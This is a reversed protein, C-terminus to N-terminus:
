VQTFDVPGGNYYLEKELVDYSNYFDELDKNDKHTLKSYYGWRFLFADLGSDLKRLERKAGSILSNIDEM